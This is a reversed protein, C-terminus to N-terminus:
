VKLGDGFDRYVGCSGGCKDFAHGKFVGEDAKAQNKGNRETEEISGSWEEDTNKLCVTGHSDYFIVCYKSSHKNIWSVTHNAFVIFSLKFM